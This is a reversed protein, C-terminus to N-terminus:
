DSGNIQGEEEFAKTLAGLGEILSGLTDDTKRELLRTVTTIKIERLQLVLNEVEAILSLLQQRRDSSCEHRCVLGM